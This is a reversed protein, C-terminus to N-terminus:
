PSSTCGSDATTAAPRPVLYKKGAAAGLKIPQGGVKDHERADVRILEAIKENAANEYGIGHKTLFDRTRKPLANWKDLNVILTDALHYFPPEIRYKLLPFVGFSALALNPWAMGDVVGRQLATYM